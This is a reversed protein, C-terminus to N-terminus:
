LHLDQTDKFRFGLEDEVHIAQYYDKEYSYSILTHIAIFLTPM